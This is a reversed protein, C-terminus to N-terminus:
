KKGFEIAKVLELDRSAVARVKDPRVVVTVAVQDGQPGALLYFTQIAPQDDIKGEVTTRFLWRGEGAEPRCNARPSPRGRWGARRM